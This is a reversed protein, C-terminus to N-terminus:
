ERRADEGLTDEPSEFYCIEDAECAEDSMCAGQNRTVCSAASLSLVVSGLAFRRVM